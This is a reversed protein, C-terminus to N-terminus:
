FYCSPLIFVLALVIQQVSQLVVEEQPLQSFTKMFKKQRSRNNATSPPLLVSPGYDSDSDHCAQLGSALTAAPVAVAPTILSSSSKLAAAAPAVTSIGTASLSKPAPSIHLTGAAAPQAFVSLSCSSPLHAGSVLPCPCLTGLGNEHSLRSIFHEILLIHGDRPSASPGVCKTDLVQISPGFKYSKPITWCLM